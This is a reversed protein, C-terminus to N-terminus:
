GVPLGYRKTIVRNGCTNVYPSSKTKPCVRSAPLISSASKASMPPKQEKEFFVLAREVTHIPLVWSLPYEDAQGNNLCFDMMANQGDDTKIWVEYQTKDM